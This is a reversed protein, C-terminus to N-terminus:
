GFSRMFIVVAREDAKWEDTLRVSEANSTRLVQVRSLASHASPASLACACALLALMEARKGCVV